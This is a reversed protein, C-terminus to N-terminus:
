HLSNAHEQESEQLKRTLADDDLSEFSVSGSHNLNLKTGYKTPQKIASTWKIIDAAVRAAQPDIKGVLVDGLLSDMVEADALASLEKARTYQLLFDPYRSIWAHITKQDPMDEDKCVERMSRGQSLEACLRLTTRKSYKSPRGIKIIKLKPKPEPTASM